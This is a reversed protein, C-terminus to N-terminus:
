VSGYLSKGSLTKCNIFITGGSGGGYTNERGNEGNAEVHGDINVIPATINVRGGGHTWGTGSGFLFSSSSNEM